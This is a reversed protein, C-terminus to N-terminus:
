IKLNGIEGIISNGMIDTQPLKFALGHFLSVCVDGFMPQHWDSWPWLPGSDPKSIKYAM